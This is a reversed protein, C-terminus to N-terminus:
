KKRDKARGREEFCERLRKMIVDYGQPRHPVLCASCDKIGGRMRFDGGCKEGLCYLPCFCFLCNFEADDRVEHCPFYKCAANRFFRHGNEVSM